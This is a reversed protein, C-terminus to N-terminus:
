TRKCRLLHLLTKVALELFHFPKTLYDTGGSMSAQARHQLGAHQTVFIIPVEQNVGERRLCACVEFGDMEPLEVDLFILDFKETACRALAEAASACEVASQKIKGLALQIGCRSISDDDVILLRFTPLGAGEPEGRAEFVEPLFDVAQTLTRLLSVSFQASRSSTEGLLLDLAECLYAARGRGLVVAVQKLENVIDKLSRLRISHRDFAPNRNLEQLSQGATRLLQPIRAAETAIFAPDAGAGEGQGRVGPLLERIFAIVQKPVFESKSLVRTAGLREVQEVMDSRFASSFVIVPTEGFGESGRIIRLLDMGSIRPLMLDLLILDPRMVQLIALGAEGDAAHTVELGASEMAKTYVRALISDDEIFLIKSM